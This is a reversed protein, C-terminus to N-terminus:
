GLIEKGKLALVMLHDKGWIVWFYGGLVFGVMSWWKFIREFLAIILQKKLQQLGSWGTPCCGKLYFGLRIRRPFGLKIQEIQELWAWDAQSHSKPPVFYFLSQPRDTPFGPEIQRLMQADSYKLMQADSDLEEPFALSLRSQDDVALFYIHFKIVVRAEEAPAQHTNWEWSWADYIGWRCSIWKFLMYFFWTLGTKQGWTNQPSHTHRAKSPPSWRRSPGFQPEPSGLM